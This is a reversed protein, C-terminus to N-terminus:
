ASSPKVRSAPRTASGRSRKSAFARLARARRGEASHARHLRLRGGVREARLQRAGRATQFVTQGGEAKMTARIEVKHPQNAQNDYVEAFLAIEDGQPFERYSSSRGPCCSSCRIRPGRRDADGRERGVDAGPQEDPLPEKAFDPVELDYSVSGAKKSNAERAGIRLTYRGPPLDISSIM